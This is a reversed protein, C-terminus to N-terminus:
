SLDHFTFDDASVFCCGTKKCAPHVKQRGALLTPASFSFLYIFIFLYFQNLDIEIYKQL